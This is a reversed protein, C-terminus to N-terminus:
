DEYKTLTSLVIQPSKLENKTNLDGGSATKKNLTVIFIYSKIM